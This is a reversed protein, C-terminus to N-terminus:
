FKCLGLFGETYRDWLPLFTTEDQRFARLSEIFDAQDVLCYHQYTLAMLQEEGWLLAIDGILNPWGCLTYQPQEWLDLGRPEAKILLLESACSFVFHM